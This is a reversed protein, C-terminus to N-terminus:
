WVQYLDDKAYLSNLNTCICKIKKEFVAPGSFSLNVYFSGSITCISILQCWPGRPDSTAVILFVNKCLGINSHCFYRFTICTFRMLEILFVVWHTPTCPGRCIDSTSDPAVSSYTDGTSRDCGGNASNLKTKLFWLALKLWAQHMNYMYMCLSFELKRIYFSLDEDFPLCDCFDLYLTPCKFIKNELVLSGSFSMNVHFNGSLTFDIKKFDHDGPTPIHWM